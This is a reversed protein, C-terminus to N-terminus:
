RRQRYICVLTKCRGMSYLGYLERNGLMRVSQQLLRCYFENDNYVCLRNPNEKMQLIHYAGSVPWAKDKSPHWGDDKLTPYHWIM